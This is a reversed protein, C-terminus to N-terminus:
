AGIHRRIFAMAWAHADAAARCPMAVVNHPAGPYVHLESPNGAAAAAPAHVALRRAVRGRHRRRVGGGHNRSLDRQKQQPLQGL